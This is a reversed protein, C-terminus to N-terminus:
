PRYRPPKPVLHNAGISREISRPKSVANELIGGGEGIQVVDHMGLDLAEPERTDLGRPLSTISDHHVVDRQEEFDEIRGFEIGYHQDVRRSRQPERAENGPATEIVLSGPAHDRDLHGRFRLARPAVVDDVVISIKGSELAGGGGDPAREGIASSKM